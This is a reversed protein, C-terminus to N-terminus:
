RDCRHGSQRPRQARPASPVRTRGAKLQPGQAVEVCVSSFPDGPNTWVIQREQAAATAACLGVAAAIALKFTTM